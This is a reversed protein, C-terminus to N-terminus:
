KQACNNARLRSRECELMWVIGPVAALEAVKPREREQPRRRYGLNCGDNGHCPVVSSGIGARRM